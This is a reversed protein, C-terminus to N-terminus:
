LIQKSTANQREIRVNYAQVASEKCPHRELFQWGSTFQIENTKIDKELRREKLIYEGNSMEFVGYEWDQYYDRKPKKFKFIM